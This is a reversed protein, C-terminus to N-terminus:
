VKQGTLIQHLLDFGEQKASQYKINEIMNATEDMTKQPKYSPVVPRDKKVGDMIIKFEPSDRLAKLLEIM